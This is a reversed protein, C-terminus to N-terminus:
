KRGKRGKKGKKGEKRGEKRWGGPDFHRGGLCCTGEKRGEKKVKRGEKRVKGVKRVM